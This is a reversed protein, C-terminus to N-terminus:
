HARRNEWVEVWDTSPLSGTVLMFTGVVIISTATTYEPAVSTSHGRATARGKLTRGDFVGPGPRSEALWGRLTTEDIDSGGHARM